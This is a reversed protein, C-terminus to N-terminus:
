VVVMVVKSMPHLLYVLTLREFEAFPTRLGRGVADLTGLTRHDERWHLLSVAM